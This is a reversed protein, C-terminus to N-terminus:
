KMIFQTGCYDCKLTNKNISGGCCICALATLVNKQIKLEVPEVEIEEIEEKRREALGKLKKEARIQMVIEEVTMGNRNSHYVPLHKKSDYLSVLMLKHKAITVYCATTQVTEGIYDAIERMTKSEKIHELRLREEEQKQWERYEREERELRERRHKKTEFFLM